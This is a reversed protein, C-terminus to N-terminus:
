MDPFSALEHHLTQTAKEKESANRLHAIVEKETRTGVAEAIEKIKNRGFEDVADICRKHEEDTWAIRSAVVFKPAESNNGSNIGGNRLNDSQLSDCAVATEGQRKNHLDLAAKALHEMMTADFEIGTPIIKTLTKAVVAAKEEDAPELLAAGTAAAACEEQSVDEVIDSRATQQNSKVNNSNSDANTIDCYGPDTHTPPPVATTKSEKKVSIKLTPFPLLSRDFRKGLTILRAHVLLLYSNSMKLRGLAQAEAAAGILDHAEALMSDVVSETRPRKNNSVLEKAAELSECNLATNLPATTSTNNRSSTITTDAVNTM